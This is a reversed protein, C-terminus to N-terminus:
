FSMADRVSLAHAGVDGSAEEREMSPTAGPGSALAIELPAIM